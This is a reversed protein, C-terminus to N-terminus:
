PLRLTQGPQIVSSRLNNAAKLKAVTIGNSKAITWLSEGSRVKHRKGSSSGSSSSAVARRPAKPLTVSKERLYEGYPGPFVAVHFHPPNHEETAELVGEGELSLLTSRLWSRCSARNSRRLDVAMGTPHVTKNVSNILHLSRPRAASTVVLREGCASRYQAALRQVFTRTIPRVYPYSVGDLTYNSNPVLKALSGDEAANRIGRGTTFFHLDAAQAHRYMRSVSTKSGRLSQADLSPVVTISLLLAAAAPPLYSRM